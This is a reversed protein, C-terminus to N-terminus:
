IERERQRKAEKCNAQLVGRRPQRSGSRRCFWLGLLALKLMNNFFSLEFLNSFDREHEMGKAKIMHTNDQRACTSRRLDEYRERKYVGEACKLVAVNRQIAIGM